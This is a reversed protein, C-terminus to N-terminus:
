MYYFELSHSHSRSLKAFCSMVSLLVKYFFIPRYIKAVVRTAVSPVCEHTGVCVGVCPTFVVVSM